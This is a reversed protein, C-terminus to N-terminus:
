ANDYHSKYDAVGIEFNCRVIGIDIKSLVGGLDKFEVEENENYIIEFKQQNIATPALLAAEVGAHFWDPVDKLDIVVEDATKTKRQKGQTQGYGIAIAIVLREGDSIEVPIKKRNFTGVWCTNLGLQQAYIVLKQGYYGIREDLTDDDPGVCAIVSPASGLGVAKNFLKSFTSSSDEVFQLHINGEKNLEEIRKNISIIQEKEIRKDQYNRVSHRSRVAEMETM